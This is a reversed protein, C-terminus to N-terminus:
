CVEGAMRKRMADRAAVPISDDNQEGTRKAEVWGQIAGDESEQVVYVIVEGPRLNLQPLGVTLAGVLVTQSHTIMEKLRLQCLNVAPRTEAGYDGRYGGRHTWTRADGVGTEEEGLEGVGAAVFRIGETDTNQTEM